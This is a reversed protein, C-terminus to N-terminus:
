TPGGVGDDRLLGLRHAVRAAETRTRAGLKGLLHSVHHDVTKAALGLRPAIEGNRLGEAVCRV